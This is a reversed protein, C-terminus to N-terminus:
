SRTPLFRFNWRSPDPGFPARVVCSTDSFRCRAVGASRTSRSRCSPSIVDARRREGSLFFPDRVNIVGMPRGARDTGLCYAKRDEFQKMFRKAEKEDAPKDGLGNKFGGYEIEGAELLQPVKLQHRWAISSGLMAFAADADWERARAFRAILSDPNDAMCSRWTVDRLTEASVSKLIQEAVKQEKERRQKTKEKDDKASGKFAGKGTDVDDEEGVDVGGGGSGDVKYTGDIISLLKAWIERLVEMEQRTFSSPYGTAEDGPDDPLAMDAVM